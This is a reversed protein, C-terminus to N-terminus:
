ITERPNNLRNSQPYNALATFGCRYGKEHLAEIIRNLADRKTETAMVEGKTGENLSNQKRSEVPRYFTQATKGPTDMPLSLFGGM